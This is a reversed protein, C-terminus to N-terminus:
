PLKSEVRSDSRWLDESFSLRGSESAIAEGGTVELWQQGEAFIEDYRPSPGAPALRQQGSTKLKASREHLKTRIRKLATKSLPKLRPASGSEESAEVAPKSPLFDLKEGPKARLMPPTRYVSHLLAATDAGFEHVARKVASAVPWPLKSDIREALNQDQVSWRVADETFPSVFRREAVGIAGVAPQIRGYVEPAWPGFHHFRWSAGTFTKGEDQAFALDALYVYKLLHIPGLERRDRDEQGAIALAYQIVLDARRTDM